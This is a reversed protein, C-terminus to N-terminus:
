GRVVALYWLAFVVVLFVAAGAWFHGGANAGGHAGKRPAFMGAVLAGVLLALGIGAAITYNNPVGTVIEEPM